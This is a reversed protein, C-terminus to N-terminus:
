DDHKRQFDPRNSPKVNATKNNIDDITSFECCHNILKIPKEIGVGIKVLSNRPIEDRAFSTRERCVDQRRSEIGTASFDRVNGARCRSTNRLYKNKKAFYHQSRSLPSRTFLFWRSITGFSNIGTWRYKYDPDAFVDRANPRRILYREIIWKIGM